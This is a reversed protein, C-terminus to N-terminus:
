GRRNTCNSFILFNFDSYLGSTNLKLSPFSIGFGLKGDPIKTGVGFAVVTPVDLHPLSIVISSTSADWELPAFETKNTHLRIIPQSYVLRVKGHKDLFAVFGKDKNFDV